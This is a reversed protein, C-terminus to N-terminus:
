NSNRGQAATRHARAGPRSWVPAWLLVGLWVCGSDFGATRVVAGGTGRWPGARTDGRATLARSPFLFFAPSHPLPPM